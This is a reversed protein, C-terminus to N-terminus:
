EIMLAADVIAIGDPDAQEAEALLRNQEAIIIPHLLANLRLRKAEDAFVLQGLRARDLSRDAALIDSGFEAVLAQVGASEPAVVDRAIQEADYVHCGLERFVGSVFSKGVGIGGTLGVKLM